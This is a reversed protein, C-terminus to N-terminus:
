LVLWGQTDFQGVGSSYAFDLFVVAGHPPRTGITDTISLRAGAAVVCAAKPGMIYARSAQAQDGTV